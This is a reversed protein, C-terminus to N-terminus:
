KELFRVYKKICEQELPSLVLADQNIDSLIMHGSNSRTMRNFTDLKESLQLLAKRGVEVEHATITVDNKSAVMLGSSVEKQFNDWALLLAKGQPTIRGYEYCYVGTAEQLMNLHRYVTRKDIKTRKAVLKVKKHIVLQRLTEM